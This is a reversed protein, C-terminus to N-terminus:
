QVRRFEQDRLDLPPSFQLGCRGYAESKRLKELVGAIHRGRKSLRSDTRWNQAEDNSCAAEFSSPEPAIQASAIMWWTGRSKGVTKEQRDDFRIRLRNGTLQTQVFAPIKEGVERRRNWEVVGDPGDKLLKLAEERSIAM